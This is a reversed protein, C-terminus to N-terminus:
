SESWGTNGRVTVLNILLENGKIDYAIRYKGRVDLRFEGYPEPAALKKDHQNVPKNLNRAKENIAELIDRQVKADYKNFEKVAKNGTFVVNKEVKLNWKVKLKAM